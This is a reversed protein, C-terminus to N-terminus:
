CTLDSLVNLMFTSEWIYYVFTVAIISTSNSESVSFFLHIIMCDHLVRTRNWQEINRGTFEEPKLFTKITFHYVIYDATQLIRDWTAIVKQVKSIIMQDWLFTRRLWGRRYIVCSIKAAAIHKDWIIKTHM